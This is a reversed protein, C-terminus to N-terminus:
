YIRYCVVERAFFLWAKLFLATTVTRATRRRDGNSVMSGASHQSDIRVSFDSKVQEIGDVFV